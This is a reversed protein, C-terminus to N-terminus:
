QSPTCPEYVNNVYEISSSDTIKSFFNVFVLNFDKSWTFKIKITNEELGCLIENFNKNTASKRLPIKTEYINVFTKENIKIHEILKVGKKWESEIPTHAVTKHEPLVIIKCYIEDKTSKDTINYEEFFQKKAIELINQLVKSEGGLQKKLSLYKKKYKLYKNCYYM